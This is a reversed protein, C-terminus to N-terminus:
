TATAELATSFTFTCASAGSNAIVFYYSGAAFNSSISAATVNPGSTWLYASAMGHSASFNTYEQPTFVYLDVPISAVFSGSVTAPVNLVFAEGKFQGSAVSLTSGAAYFTTPSPKTAPTLAAAVVILVIVVMVVIAAVALLKTRSRKPPQVAYQTPPNRPPAATPPPSAAM